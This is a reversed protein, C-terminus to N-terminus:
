SFLEVILNLHRENPQSHTYFDHNIGHFRCASDAFREGFLPSSPKLPAGPAIFRPVPFHSNCQGLVGTPVLKSIRMFPSSSMEVSPVNRYLTTASGYVM